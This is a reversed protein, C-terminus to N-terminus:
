LWVFFSRHMGHAVWEIGDGIGVGDGVDVV